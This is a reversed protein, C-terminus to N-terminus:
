PSGAAGAALQAFTLAMIARTYRRTRPSMSALVRALTPAAKASPLAYGIDLAGAELRAPTLAMISFSAPLSARAPVPPAPIRSTKHDFTGSAAIVVAAAVVLALAAGAAIRWMHRQRVPVAITTRMSMSGRGEEAAPSIAIRDARRPPNWPVLIV